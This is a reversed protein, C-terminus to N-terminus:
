GNDSYGREKAWKLAEDEVLGIRKDQIYNENQLDRWAVVMNKEYISADWGRINNDSTFYSIQVRKEGKRIVSNICRRLIKDYGRYWINQRPPVFQVNNWVM